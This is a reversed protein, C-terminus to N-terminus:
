NAGSSGLPFCCVYDETAQPNYYDKGPCLHKEDHCNRAQACAVGADFNCGSIPRCEYEPNQESYQRYCTTVCQFNHCLMNAGGCARGESDARNRCFDDAQQQATLAQNNQLGTELKFPATTQLSTLIFNVILWSSFIFFLATSTGVLISKGTKVWDARGASALMYVGGIVFMLLAIAGSISVGWNLLVGFGNIIDNIKCDGTQACGVKSILDFGQNAAHATTVFSSLLLM